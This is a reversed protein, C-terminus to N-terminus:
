CRLLDRTTFGGWGWQNKLQDYVNEADAQQRYGDVLALLGWGLNTVLVIYEYDLGPVPLLEAWDLLSHKPETPASSRQRRIVVVRRERTWGGLRLRGEKASEDRGVPQWSGQKELGRVLEQVRPTRRLRFLYAQQRRECDALLQEQGYACDGRILYPREPPPWAM